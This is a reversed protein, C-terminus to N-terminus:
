HKFRPVVQVFRYGPAWFCVKYKFRKTVNTAPLVPDSISRLSITLTTSLPEMRKILKDGSWITIVADAPCLSLRIYIQSKWLIARIRIRKPEEKWIELTPDGVVHPIELNFQVQVESTEVGQYKGVKTPLYKKGYNLIDGLRNKRVPYSVNASLTPCFINGWMADFFAKMLYNNLWSYGDRTCAILSPAGADISLIEEAFCKKGKERDFIGTYCSLSYFMTPVKGSVNILDGTTFEPDVWGDASGHGRHAIILQGENTATVLANTYPTSPKSDKIENIVDVPVPTGNAYSKPPPSNKDKVYIRDINFGIIEMQKRIEEMTQIYACDEIGDAKYGNSKIDEFYAAFVMRDYYDQDVPPTKEYRIIQDVVREAENVQEAENMTPTGVPIRGIALWPLEINDDTPDKETSYYHDTAPGNIYDTKIHDVDGFLLVYGLRSFYPKRRTRNYDKIDLPEIDAPKKGIDNGIDKISVTETRLGRRNKWRALKKAADKFPDHYIIIFEPGRPKVPPLFYKVGHFVREEVGPEPNVFLNGFAMTNTAPDIPFITAAEKKAELAIIVTINGYAELRRKSPFYQLPCVNLLLSSYGDVELPGRTGVIKKPYVKTEKYFDKDYEFKYKENMGDKLMTQAPYVLVNDFVVPEGNTTWSISFACGPPIQVYRGFSPLLPRGNEAIWGTGGINIQKFIYKQDGINRAHESIYFGPFIFSVDIRGWEENLIVFPQEGHDELKFHKPLEEPNLSEFKRM